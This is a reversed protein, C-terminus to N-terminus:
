VVNLLPCFFMVSVWTRCLYRVEEATGGGRERFLSHVAGPSRAIFCRRVLLLPQESYLCGDLVPHQDFVDM